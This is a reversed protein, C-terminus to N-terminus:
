RAAPAITRICCAAPVPPEALRTVFSELRKRLLPTFLDSDAHGALFHAAAQPSVARALVNAHKALLYDVKPGRRLSEWSAELAVDNVGRAVMAEAIMFLYEFDPRGANRFDSLLKQIDDDSVTNRRAYHAFSKPNERYALSMAEQLDEVPPENGSLVDLLLPKLLGADQVVRIPVHMAYPVPVVCTGSGAYKLLAQHHKSDWTDEPDIFVLARETRPRALWWREDFQPSIESWDRKWRPDGLGSESTVLVQPGFCLAPGGMMASQYLAGYGGMSAGYHILRAPGTVERILTQVAPLEVSHWWCNRFSRLCVARLGQKRAFTAGFFPSEGGAGWASYTVLVSEGRPSEPSLHLVELDRGSFIIQEDM